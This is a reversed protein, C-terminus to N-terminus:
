KKPFLWLEYARWLSAAHAGCSAHEKGCQCRSRTRWLNTDAFWKEHSLEDPINDFAQNPGYFWDYEWPFISNGVTKSCECSCPLQDSHKKWFAKLDALTVLNVAVAVAM